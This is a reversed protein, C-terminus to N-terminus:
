PAAIRANGGATPPALGRLLEGGDRVRGAEIQAAIAQPSLEFSPFVPFSVAGHHFTLVDGFHEAQERARLAERDAQSDFDACSVRDERAYRFDPDRSLLFRAMGELQNLHVDALQDAWLFQGQPNVELFHYNGQGDLIFDFMGMVLGLERLLRVSQEIIPAPLTHERFVAGKYMGRWDVHLAASRHPFSKEVAFVSRGLITVRIEATKEIAAQCIGPTSTLDNDRLLAEDEILTTPAFTTNGDALQFANATLPKYVMRGGNEHFFRLIRQPSNSILTPPLPLGIERAVGFQFPKSNCTRMAEVHSAVFKGREIRAFMSRLFQSCDREAASQEFRDTLAPRPVVINPRRMWVASYRQFDFRQHSGRFETDLRDPADLGYSWEAGGALDCTYLVDCDTGLKRLAWQVAISEYDNPMSVILVAM